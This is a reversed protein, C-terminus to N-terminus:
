VAVPLYLLLLAQKLFVSPDKYQQLKGEYTSCSFTKREEGGEPRRGTMEQM